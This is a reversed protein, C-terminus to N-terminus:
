VPFQLRRFRFPLRSQSPYLAIRPLLHVDGYFNGQSIIRAQIMTPLFSDVRLRTVNCIGQLTNLNRLLIVICGIKLRLKHLPMTADDITNLFETPYLSENNVEGHPIADFSFYEMVEGPFVDLVMNNVKVVDVNLPTLITKTVLSTATDDFTGYVKAILDLLSPIRQIELPLHVDPGLRGEGAALLFESWAQQELSVRVNTRLSFISCHRWVESRNLSSSIIMSRSGKQIVPLMQRFDGGLVVVKGGFPVNELTADITKMVDRVSRDLTEYVHRHMMPAEDVIIISASQIRQSIVSDPSIGCTSIHTVPIPINFTSHLMRGGELLLAAIGSTATPIATLHSAKIQSLIASYLFTKGSGGLGDHFFVRPERAHNGSEIADFVADYFQRQEVNLM